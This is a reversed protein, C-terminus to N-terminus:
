RGKPLEVSKGFTKETVIEIFEIFSKIGLRYFVTIKGDESRITAVAVLAM